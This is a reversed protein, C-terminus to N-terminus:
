VATGPHSGTEIEGKATLTMFALGTQDTAEAVTKPAEVNGVLDRAISYFANSHGAKATFTASTAVTNTQFPTFRGGNDSVCITYDQIAAHRRHFRPASCPKAPRCHLLTAQPHRTTLHTSAFQTSGFLPPCLHTQTLFSQQKIESRLTQLSDKNPRITFFVGGEGGLPSFGVSPDTPSQNTTPDLSPLSWTLLGNTTNLNARIAVLLNDAPRL